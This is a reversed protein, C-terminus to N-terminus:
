HVERAEGSEVILGLQTRKEKKVLYHHICSCALLSSIAVKEKSLERDSLLVFSYGQKIADESDRCIRKLAKKM